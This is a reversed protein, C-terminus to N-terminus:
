AVTGAPLSKQMIEFKLVYPRVVQTFITIAVGPVTPRASHIMIKGSAQVLIYSGIDPQKKGFGRKFWRRKRGSCSWPWSTTRRNSSIKCNIAYGVRNTPKAPCRFVGLAASRPLPRPWKKKPRAMYVSITRRLVSISRPTTIQKTFIKSNLWINTTKIM